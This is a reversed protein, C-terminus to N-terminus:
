ASLRDRVMASVRKGDARGQVEPMVLSMVKGMERPSAAGARAVADGVIAGLEDDSLQRPLYEEVIAAEREETSALDDRGAERYAEAAEFRRKRERQLVAAEDAGDGGEKLAKQLESSLMRLAGVRERDRDRMASQTDGQIRELISM